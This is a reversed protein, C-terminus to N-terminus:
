TPESDLDFDVIEEAHFFVIATKL